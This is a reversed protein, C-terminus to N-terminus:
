AACPRAGLARADEILEILANRNALSHALRVHRRAREVYEARARPDTLLRRVAQALAAETGACIGVREAELVGDPDVSLSVVAADRLWAQIFTNPFGEHVSTNVFIWAQALLRNVEDHGLPGRYELNPTAEIDAILASRWGAHKTGSPAEGVMIFHAEGLGRLARALRVFAEPRKWPKFNAIWVVTPVSSKVLPETPEPHFNAVIADAQRGYHRALLESQHRTQVIICDARPIAYEVSMKELRRRLLNRGADLTHPMVDTDHAVHWILRAAHRRAYLACIGTYGCAVRQYIVHPAITRLARYLPVLDAVYGLFPPRAGHGIRVIRYGAPRRAENVHRALYYIEFRDTEALAAILLAIQFEAGGGHEYPNVICLRNM